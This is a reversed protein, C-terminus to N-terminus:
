RADGGYKARVMELCRMKYTANKEVLVGTSTRDPRVCDDWAQQYPDPAMSAVVVALILFFAMTLFAWKM